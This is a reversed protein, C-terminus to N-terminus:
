GDGPASPAVHRPNEAARDQDGDGNRDEPKGMGQHKEGDGFRQDDEREDLVRPDRIGAAQGEAHNFGTATQVLSDYGRREAWPGSHGYASLSVYVIGPSIRAAEQPWCGLAASSQPRTGRSFCVGM